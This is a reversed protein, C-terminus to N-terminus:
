CSRNLSIWWMSAGHPPFNLVFIHNGMFPGTHVVKLSAGANVSRMNLASGPPSGSFIAASHTKIYSFLEKPRFVLGFFKLSQAVSQLPWASCDCALLLFLSLASPSCLDAVSLKENILM